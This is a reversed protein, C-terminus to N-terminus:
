LPSRVEESARPSSNPVMILSVWILAVFFALESEGSGEPGRVCTGVRGVGDLSPRRVGSWRPLLVEGSMVSAVAGMVRCPLAVVTEVVGTVTAKGRDSYM